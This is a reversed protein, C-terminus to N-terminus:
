ARVTASDYRAGGDLGVDATSLPTRPMSKAHGAAEKARWQMCKSGIKRTKSSNEDCFNHSPAVESERRGVGGRVARALSLHVRKYGRAM